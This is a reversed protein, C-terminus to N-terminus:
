KRNVSTISFSLSGIISSMYIMTWSHTYTMTDDLSHCEYAFLLIWHSHLCTLHFCDRIIQRCVHLFDDYWSICEHLIANSWSSIEDTRALSRTHTRTSNERWFVNLNAFKSNLTHPVNLVLLEPAWKFDSETRKSFYVFLQASRIRLLFFIVDARTNHPRISQNTELYCLGTQFM